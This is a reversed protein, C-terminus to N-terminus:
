RQQPLGSVVRNLEVIHGDPDTLMSVMVEIPPGGDQGPYTRPTPPGIVRVGPVAAAAPFRAELDTANFLLVIEGAGFAPETVAPAEPGTDFQWLGLMGIFSDNARLLVLRSANVGDGGARQLRPSTLRQDYQVTMGLADRYFALSAEMDRVILTTRRLDLPNRAEASAQPTMPPGAAPTACGAALLGSAIAAILVARM